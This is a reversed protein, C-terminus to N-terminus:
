VRRSHVVVRRAGPLLPWGAGRPGARAPQDDGAREAHRDVDRGGPEEDGRQDGDPEGGGDLPGDGTQARPPVGHRQGERDQEVSETRTCSSLWVTTASRTPSGTRRILRCRSPPTESISRGASVGPRSAPMATAPGSTESRTAPSAKRTPSSSSGPVTPRRRARPRISLLRTTPTNLRSGPSGAPRRGPRRRPPTAPWRGGGCRCPRRRSARGPRRRPRGRRGTGRPAAASGPRRRQDVHDPRAQEPREDPDAGALRDDCPPTCCRSGASDARGQGPPGDRHGTSAAGPRPAAGRALRGARTAQDHDVAAAVGTPSTFSAATRAVGTSRRGQTGTPSRDRRSSGAQRQLGLQVALLQDLRM